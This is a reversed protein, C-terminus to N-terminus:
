IKRLIEYTSLDKNKIIYGEKALSLMPIDSESDSFARDASVIGQEALVEVKRKGKCNPSLFQATHIDMESAILKIGFKDAMPKVLFVPSASIIIDDPCVSNAFWTCINKEEKSWFNLIEKEIDAFHRIFFMFKSKFYERNKIKLKFLLFGWIQVVLGFILYPKRKLCYLWFKVTCDYFYVTKDFDYLTM